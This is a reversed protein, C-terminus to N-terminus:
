KQKSVLLDHVAANSTLFVHPRNLIRGKFVDGHQRMQRAVYERPSRVFELSKDGLVTYGLNGPVEM